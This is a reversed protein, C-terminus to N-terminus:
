TTLPEERGENHGGALLWAVQGLLAWPRPHKPADGVVPLHNPKPCKNQSQGMGCTEVLSPRQDGSVASM